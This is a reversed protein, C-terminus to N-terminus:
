QKAVFSQLYRLADAAEESVRAPSWGLEKAMVSCVRDVAARAAAESLFAIGSRRCLFDQARACHERHCSYVVDVDTSWIPTPADPCLLRATRWRHLATDDDSEDRLVDGEAAAVEIATRCVEEAADGYTQLWYLMQAAPIGRYEARGALAHAAGWYPKAFHSPPPPAGAALPVNTYQQLARAGHLVIDATVPAGETVTAQLLGGSVLTEVADAAMKRYTTWKGGTISLVRRAANLHISHERVISQPAGDASATEPAALPRIGCWVSLVESRDIPGLHASLNALIFQVDREPAQPSEEVPALADTTGAICHGLYSICFIVRGDNSPILMARDRPAYRHPLTIHTGHSPKVKNEHGADVARRVADSFPGTANVITKAYVTHQTNTLRDVVTCKNMLVVKAAAPAGEDYIPEIAVLKCHNVCAAGYRAATLAVHLCLRADHHQGDYYCVSGILFSPFALLLGVFAM